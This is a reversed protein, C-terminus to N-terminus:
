RVCESCTGHQPCEPSNHFQIFTKDGGSSLYAVYGAAVHDVFRGTAPNIPLDRPNEHM